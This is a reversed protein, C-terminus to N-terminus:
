PVNITTNPCSPLTPWQVGFPVGNSCGGLTVNLDFRCHASINKAGGSAYNHCIGGNSSADYLSVKQSGDGWDITNTTPMDLRLKTGRYALPGVKIDIGQIIPQGLISIYINPVDCVGLSAAKITPDYLCVKHTAPDANTNIPLSGTSCSDWNNGNLLTCVASLLDTPCAFNGSIEVNILLKKIISMLDLHMIDNILNNQIILRFITNLIDYPIGTLKEVQKSAFESLLEEIQNKAYNALSELSINKTESLFKAFSAIEALLKPDINVGLKQLAQNIYPTVFDIAIQSLMTQGRSSLYSKLTALFDSTKFNLFDTINKGQTNITYGLFDIMYKAMEPSINFNDQLANLAQSSLFNAAEKVLQQSDIDISIGSQSLLVSLGNREIEISLNRLDFGRNAVLYQIFAITKQILQPDITKGNIQIMGLLQNAAQAALVYATNKITEIGKQLTIGSSSVYQQWLTEIDAQTKKIVDQLTLNRNDILFRVFGVINNLEQDNLNTEEKIKQLAAAPIGNIAQIIQSKAAQAEANLGAAIMNIMKEVQLAKQILPSASEQAYALLFNGIDQPSPLNALQKGNKVLYAAFNGLEQAIGPDIKMAATFQVIFNKVADAALNTLAEVGADIFVNLKEAFLSPNQALAVPDIGKAQLWFYFDVLGQVKKAIDEGFIGVIVDGTFDSAFGGLLQSLLSGLINCLDIKLQGQDSAKKWGKETCNYDSGPKPDKKPTGCQWEYYGSTNKQCTPKDYYKCYEQGNETITRAIDCSDAPTGQSLYCNFSSNEGILESILDDFVIMPESMSCASRAKVWYGKFPEVNARPSWLGYASGIASFLWDIELSCSGKIQEWSYNSTSAILNWGAKLQTGFRDGMKRTVGGRSGVSLDCDEDVRVWYGRLPSLTNTKQYKFLQPSWEWPGSAIKCGQLYDKSLSEDAPSVLNWGKKLSITGQPAIPVIGAKAIKPEFFLGLSALGTQSFILSLLIFGITLNKFLKKKM